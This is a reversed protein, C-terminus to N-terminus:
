AVVKQSRLSNTFLYSIMRNYQYKFKVAVTFYVASMVTHSFNVKCAVVIIQFFITSPSPLCLSCSFDFYYVTNLKEACMPFRHLITYVCPSFNPSKHVTLYFCPFLCHSSVPLFVSTNISVLLSIFV